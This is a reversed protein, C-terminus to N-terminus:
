KTHSTREFVMSTSGGAGNCIGALGVRSITYKIVSLLTVLFKVGSCCVPHELSVARGFLNTKEEPLALLMSIALAVVSFAENLESEDVEEICRSASKLARSISLLLATTFQEPEM